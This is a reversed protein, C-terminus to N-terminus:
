FEYRLMWETVYSSGSSVPELQEPPILGVRQEQYTTRWWTFEVGTTIADSLHWIQNAFIFQNMGRGIQLDSNAPDDIGSGIHTETKPSWFKAFELWGGTSHISRRVCPCVGQAIGGLFPSLNAGHFAEGRLVTTESLAFQSDLNVSWTKFRADDEPPLNLPPPGTQKFDFGTEGYHGSLGIHSGRTSLSNPLLYAVRTMIVPYAASERRIDPESPFDPIIDQNLSAQVLLEGANRFRVIRQVRFQARRFGINGGAWGVSFNVTTPWLPSIVDWTQGVLFQWQENEAQWYAHRLRVGSANETVFQGLFDIEVRGSTKLGGWDEAVEPGDVNLGM